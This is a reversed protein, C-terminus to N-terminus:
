HAAQTPGAAALAAAAAAADPFMRFNPHDVLGTAELLRTIGQNAGIVALWGPESFRRVLTFMISLGGSDIFLLESLDLILMTPKAALEQDLVSRLQEASDHGLEGRVYILPVGLRYSVQSDLSPEHPSRDAHTM